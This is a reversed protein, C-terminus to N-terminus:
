LERLRPVSFHRALLHQSFFRRKSRMSEPTSQLRRYRWRPRAWKKRAARSGPGSSGKPPQQLYWRRHFGRHSQTSRHSWSLKAPLALAGKRCPGLVLVPMVARVKAVAIAGEPLAGLGLGAHRGKGERRRVQVAIPVDIQDQGPLGLKIARGPDADLQAVAVAGKLGVSFCASWSTSLAAPGATTASKFPSPMGSM